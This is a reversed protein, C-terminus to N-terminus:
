GEIAVEFRNPVRVARRVAVNPAVEQVLARIREHDCQCGTIVAQLAGVPLKLFSQDTVLTDAGQVAEAREQAVLRYEQEYRWVDSKSLLVLLAAAESNDWLRMMPFEASYECKLAGCLADNRLDFELCIGRHSDAYHAWMLLNGVDPGLCYVRYRLNIAQGIGDSNQRLLEAARARDTLLVRRMNELDLESMTTKRHCLDVAWDAHRRCEEPDDLVESNFHPRCDWPDNFAAPSSCYIRNTQLTERLRPEVFGQWHYLVRHGEAFATTAM